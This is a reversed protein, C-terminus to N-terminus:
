GFLYLLRTAQGVTSRALAILVLLKLLTQGVSGSLTWLVGSAARNTLSRPKEVKEASRQIRSSRQDHDPM